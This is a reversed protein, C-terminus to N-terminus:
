HVVYHSYNITINKYKFNALLSSVLYKKKKIKIQRPNQWVNFHFLWPNVHTGWGSGGEWRGGWTYSHSTIPTNILKVTTIIEHHICIYFMLNLLRFIYLKKNTLRVETFGSPSISFYWFLFWICILFNNGWFM